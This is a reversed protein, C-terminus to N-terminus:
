ICHSPQGSLAQRNAGNIVPVWIQYGRNNPHFYDQAFLSKDRRFISGTEQAIPAFTLEKNKAVEKFVENIQNTRIGALLRLPQPIRPISGMDAAGTLVIKVNCNQKILQDIVSMIDERVSSLKTVHTVDNSGVVITAIDPNFMVAQRLQSTRVDRVRAGSVATNLFDVKYDKALNEVSSLAIGREYDGGRGVATSDGMMIYRLKEGKGRDLRREIESVPVPEGKYVLWSFEFIIFGFIVGIIIVILMSNRNYMRHKMGRSYALAIISAVKIPGKLHPISLM